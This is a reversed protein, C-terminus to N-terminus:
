ASGPGIAAATASNFTWRRYATFNWIVSIPIGPLAAVNRGLRGYQHLPVLMLAFVGTQLGLGVLTLSLFLAYQHAIRESQDKFAWRKNLAFSFVSTVLFACAYAVVTRLRSAHAPTLINFIAFFLAVNMCGIVAYRIFQGTIEHRRLKGAYERLTTM